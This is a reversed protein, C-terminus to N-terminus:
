SRDLCGEAVPGWHVHPKFLTPKEYKISKHANNQPVKIKRPNYQTQLFKNHVYCLPKPRDKFETTYIKMFKM